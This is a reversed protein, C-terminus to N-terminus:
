SLIIIVSHLIDGSEAVFVWGGRIICLKVRFRHGSHELALQFYRQKDM